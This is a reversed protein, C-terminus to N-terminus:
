IISDMYVWDYYNEKKISIEQMPAPLLWPPVKGHSVGTNWWLVNLITENETKNVIEVIQAMVDKMKYHQIFGLRKFM